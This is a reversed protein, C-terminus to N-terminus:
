GFSDGVGVLHVGASHGVKIRALVALGIEVEHFGTNRFIGNGFDDLDHFVLQRVPEAKIEYLINLHEAWHVTATDTGIM